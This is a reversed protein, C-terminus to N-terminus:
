DRDWWPRASPCGSRRPSSSRSRSSARPASTTRSFGSVVTQAPCWLRPRVGCSLARLDAAGRPQSAGRRSAGPLDASHGADACQLRRQRRRRDLDTDLSGRSIRVLAAASDFVAETVEGPVLPMGDARKYSREPILTDATVAKSLKRHLLRLQGETVYRVRGDPAVDELYVFVGGDTANASLFLRVRPHGTVELPKQLPATTYTLLRASEERRDGYGRKEGTGVILGWRSGPGSTDVPEVQYRDEAEANGPADRGLHKDPEFYLPQWEVGPPPWTSSSKWREQGMTYYQVPPDSGIGANVGRLHWDFFRILEAAHDFHNNRGNAYPSANFQGGHFWPGIRLRSGPNGSAVYERIQGRAIAGDLWGGYAYVPMKSLNPLTAHPSFEDMKVPESGPLIDDRFVIPGVLQAVDVNRAHEAIAQPLLASEVPMVSRAVASGSWGFVDGLRGADLSSLLRSWESLLGKNQLGGPLFVDEYVDWGSFRPVVAKLAPHQNRILLMALVGNYSAGIGGVVGASWPQAAIWDLVEAGDRVETDSLPYAQHGFSAGSGRVDVDVWSYGAKVISERTDPETVPYPGFGGVLKFVGRLQVSRYYRSMHLITATREGEALGKPVHVDVALRVGDRMTVFESWTRIGGFHRTTPTYRPAAPSSQGAARPAPEGCFLVALLAILTLTTRSAALRTMRSDMKM